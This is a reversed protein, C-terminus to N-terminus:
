QSPKEDPPFARTQRARFEELAEEALHDLRGAAIDKEIQGDWADSLVEAFWRALCRQESEPLRTIAQQIEVVTSV